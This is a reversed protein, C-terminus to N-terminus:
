REDFFLYVLAQLVLKLDSTLNNSRFYQEELEVLKEFDKVGMRIAHQAPGILGPKMLGAAELSLFRANTGSAVKNEKVLSSRCVGIFSMDGKLISYFYPLKDLETKRLFNGFPTTKNSYESVFVGYYNVISNLERKATRFSPLYFVNGDKGVETSFILASDRCSVATIIKAFVLFPALFVIILISLSLDSIRKLCSFVVFNIRVVNQAFSLKKNAIFNKAVSYRAAASIQAAAKVLSLSQRIRESSNRQDFLLMHWEEAYHQQERKPLSKLSRELIWLSLTDFDYSLDRRDFVFLLYSVLLQATFAVLFSIFISLLLNM